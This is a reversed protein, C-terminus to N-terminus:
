GTKRSITASILGSPTEIPMFVEAKAPTTNDIKIYDMNVPIYHKNPLTYTVSNVGANEAVIKQAMKYLTAQVSASEDQAFVELTVKRARDFVETDWVDGGSGQPVDFDLKDENSPTKISIPAFSYSLDVSTSFIRDDVEVLTTYEDRIFNTFASGTSKLVLLDAIGSTVKATIDGKGGSADVEVQTVRKEDGDRYFSHAHPTTQGSADVPIRSWRLQQITIFAKHIHAYKAVLHTGLHLAFREPNAVHPSVKALYYTINKISDTAVIVSNDAETYSTDVEGELLATVYYEVVTHHSGDRVVRLVRVKDKGYRAHSLFSQESSM